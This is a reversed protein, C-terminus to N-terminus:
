RSLERYGEQMRGRLMGYDPLRVEGPEWRDVYENYEALRPPLPNLNVTASNNVVDILMALDATVSLNSMSPDNLARLEEDEGEIVISVSFDILFLTHESSTGKPGCMINESHIDGHVFCCRHLHQLIDLAQMMFWYVEGLSQLKRQGITEGLRDLVLVDCNYMSDSHLFRPFGTARGAAHVARYVHAEQRLKQSGCPESKVVATEANGENAAQVFGYTGMGIVEGVTWRENIVAGIPIPGPHNAPPPQSDSLSSDDSSRSMSEDSPSESSTDSESSSYKLFHSQPDM